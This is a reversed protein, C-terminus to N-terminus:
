AEECTFFWMKGTEKNQIVVRDIGDVTRTDIVKLPEKSQRANISDVVAALWEAPTM